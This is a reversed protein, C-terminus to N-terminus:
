TVNRQNTPGEVGECTPNPMTPEAPDAGARALAHGLPPYTGLIAHNVTMIYGSSTEVVQVGDRSFARAAGASM